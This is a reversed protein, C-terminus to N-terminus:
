KDPLGQHQQANRLFSVAVTVLSISMIVMLTLRTMMMLNERCYSCDPEYFVEVRLEEIEEAECCVIRSERLRNPPAREEDGEQHQYRQKGVQHHHHHCHAPRCVKASLHGVKQRLAIKFRCCPSSWWWSWLWCSWLIMIFMILRLGVALYFRSFSPLRILPLFACMTM